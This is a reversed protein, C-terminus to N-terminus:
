PAVWYGTDIGLGKIERRAARELEPSVAKSKHWGEGRIEVAYGLVAVLGLAIGVAFIIALGKGM